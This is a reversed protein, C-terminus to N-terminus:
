TNLREVAAKVEEPTVEWQRPDEGWCQTGREPEWVEDEEGPLPFLHAMVRDAMEQSLSPPSRKSKLTKTVAKYPRGWPNGELEKVFGEWAEVRARLLVKSLASTAERYERERM